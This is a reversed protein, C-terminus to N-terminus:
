WSVAYRIQIEDIGQAISIAALAIVNCGQHIGEAVVAAVIWVESQHDPISGGAASVIHLKDVENGLLRM